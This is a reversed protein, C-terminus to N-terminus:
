SPAKNHMERVADKNAADILCFITEREEDIWYTM